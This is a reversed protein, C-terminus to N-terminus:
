VAVAAVKGIPTTATAIGNGNTPAMVMTRSRLKILAMFREDHEREDRFDM